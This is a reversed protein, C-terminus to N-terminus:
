LLTIVAALAGAVVGLLLAFLLVGAVPLKRRPAPAPNGGVAHARLAAALVDQPERTTM